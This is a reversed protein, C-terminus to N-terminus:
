STDEQLIMSVGMKDCWEWNKWKLHKIFELREPVHITVPWGVFQSGLLSYATCWEFWSNSATFILYFVTVPIPPDCNM